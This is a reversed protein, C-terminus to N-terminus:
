LPQRVLYTGTARHRNMVFTVPVKFLLDQDAFPDKSKPSYHRISSLKGPQYRWHSLGTVAAHDLSGDGTSTMVTVEKVRGTRVNVRVKFLGKGQAYRRRAELPYDPNPMSIAWKTIESTTFESGYANGFSITSWVTVAVVACRIRRFGCRM